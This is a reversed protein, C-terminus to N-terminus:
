LEQNNQSEVEKNKLESIAIQLKDLEETVEKTPKDNEQRALIFWRQKLANMVVDESKEVKNEPRVSKFNELNEPNEM